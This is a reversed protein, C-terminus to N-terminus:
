DVIENSPQVDEENSSHMLRYVTVKRGSVRCERPSLEEIFGLRVMDTARRRISDHLAVSGGIAAAVERATGSGGIIELGHM